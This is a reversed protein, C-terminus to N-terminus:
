ALVTRWFVSEAVPWFPNGSTSHDVHLLYHRLEPPQAAMWLDAAIALLAEAAPVTVPDPYGQHM